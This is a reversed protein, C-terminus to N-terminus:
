SYPRGNKMQSFADIAAASRLKRYSNEDGTKAAGV